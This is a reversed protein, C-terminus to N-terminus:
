KKNDFCCFDHSFFDTEDISLPLFSPCPKRDRKAIYAEGCFDSATDCVYWRKYVSGAVV